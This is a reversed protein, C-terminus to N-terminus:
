AVNSNQKRLREKITVIEENPYVALMITKKWRINV